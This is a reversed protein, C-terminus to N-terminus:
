NFTTVKIATRPSNHTYQKEQLKRTVSKTPFTHKNIHNQLSEEPHFANQRTKPPVAATQALPPPFHVRISDHKIILTKCSMRKPNSAFLTSNIRVDLNFIAHNEAFNQTQLCRIGHASSLLAAHSKPRRWVLCRNEGQKSVFPFANM